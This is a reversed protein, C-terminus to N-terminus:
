VDSGKAPPIFGCKNCEWMGDENQVIDGDCGNIGCPWSPYDDEPIADFENM